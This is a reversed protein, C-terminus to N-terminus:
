QYLLMKHCVTRLCEPSMNKVLWDGFCALFADHAGFKVAVM